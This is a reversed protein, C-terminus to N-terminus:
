ASGVIVPLATRMLLPMRSPRTPESVGVQPIPDGILIAGDLGTVRVPIRRGLLAPTFGPLEVPLHRCSTGRVHDRRKAETAEVLVDLRSGILSRAYTAALEAELSLLRQRREHIVEPSVRGPLDAAPTGARASFSFIHVKCFGGERLVACTEEFDAETEGPFGLIVDTTLAPRDLARKLVACRELFGRQSYRRKMARLIRDSGSQLCLHLHPCVRPNRALVDILDMRVEAAELSSLRIRFDGERLCLREVLHSLRQWEAKLKGRSLDIGYHGLHIGTLVIEHCGSAVLGAVEREIEEPQRSQLAPRVHPIICYSCNLLCGDQVKVFARQHGDFRAIGQPLVSVDYRRLEAALRTKDTIVHTVGPLRAVAIPDRTAYCGMVAIAAGPNQQALRRVLQRGKADAEHTVTCSNLICLEAREGPGAERWGNLELAEKVYQTEYQNVKCGLTVLRCARSSSHMSSPHMSM